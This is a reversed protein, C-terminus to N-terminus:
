AWGKEPMDPRPLVIVRITLKDRVDEAAVHPGFYWETHQNPAVEQEVVEELDCFGSEYGNVMVRLEPPCKSLKEILERVIM